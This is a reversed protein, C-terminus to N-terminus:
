ETLHKLFAECAKEAEAFTNFPSGGVRVAPRNLNILRWSAVFGPQGHLGPGSRSENSIVFSFGSDSASWIELNAPTDVRSFRLAM